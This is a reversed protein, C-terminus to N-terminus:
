GMRKLDPFYTKYFGRDRTLIRDTRLAAHAAIIFDSIIRQRSGGARRYERWKTGALFAIEEDLHSIQVNLQALARELRLRDVFQPVLEAYVMHCIVLAGDNYAQRLLESSIGVYQKDPLFVDLLVNTDLATIM